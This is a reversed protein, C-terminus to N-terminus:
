HRYQERRADHLLLVLRDLSPRQSQECNSRVVTAQVAVAPTPATRTISHEAIRGHSERGKCALCSPLTRPYDFSSEAVSRRGVRHRLTDEGFRSFFDCAGEYTSTKQPGAQKCSGSAQESLHVVAPFPGAAGGGKRCSQRGVLQM